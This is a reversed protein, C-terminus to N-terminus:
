SAVVKMQLNKRTTPTWFHHQAALKVTWRIRVIQKWSSRDKGPFLLLSLVTTAPDMEPHPLTDPPSPVRFCWRGVEHGTQCSRHSWWDIHMVASCESVFRIGVAGPSWWHRRNSWCKHGRHELWSRRVQGVPVRWKPLCRHRFCVLFVEFRYLPFLTLRRVYMSKICTCM